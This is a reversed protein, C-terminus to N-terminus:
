DCEYDISDPVISPSMYVFASTEGPSLYFNSQFGSNWNVTATMNRSTRNQVRAYTQNNVRGQDLVGFCYDTGFRDSHHEDDWYGGQELTLQDNYMMLGSAMEACGGLLLMGGAVALMKLRM